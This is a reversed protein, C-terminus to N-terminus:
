NLQGGQCLRTLWQRQRLKHAQNLLGDQIKQKAQAFPVQHEAVHQKCWVLHYGMDSLIAPSFSEAAMNFLVMDLEPLLQGQEVLGLYGGNVATPCESHREALQEFNDANVQKVLQSIRAKAQAPTNEKFQPNITILLHHAERRQVQTFKAINHQYYDLAQQESVPLIDRCVYALVADSTLEQAVASRLSQESLQNASLAKAFEAPSDFSHEVLEIAKDLQEPTIYVQSAEASGLVKQQITQTKSVVRALEKTQAADLQDPNLEFLALSTKMVLYAQTEESAPALLGLEDLM